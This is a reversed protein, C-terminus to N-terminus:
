VKSEEYTKREYTKVTHVGISNPLDFPRAGFSKDFELRQKEMNFKYYNLNAAVIGIDSMKRIRSMAISNQKQLLMLNSMINLDDNQKRKEAKIMKSDEKNKEKSEINRRKKENKYRADGKIIQTITANSLDLEKAIECARKKEAYYLKKVKEYQLAKQENKTKRRRSAEELYRSDKKVHKYINQKTSEMIKAIEQISKKENFYMEVIRTSDM